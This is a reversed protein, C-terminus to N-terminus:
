GAWRGRTSGRIPPVHHLSLVKVITQEHRLHTASSPPNCTYACALAREACVAVRVCRSVLLVCSAVGRLDYHARQLGAAWALPPTKSRDGKGACCEQVTGEGCACVYAHMYTTIRESCGPLAAGASPPTKSRDGKGAWWAVVASEVGSRVGSVAGGVALLHHFSFHSFSVRSFHSFYSFSVRSVSPSLSPSLGNCM